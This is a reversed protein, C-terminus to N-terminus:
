RTQFVEVKTSVVLPKVKERFSKMHPATFHARLADLSEWKEIMVVVDDRLPSAPPDSVAVDVTPVYEVCGAEARVLPLLSRQEALFEARRGAALQITAVVHIMTRGQERFRATGGAL